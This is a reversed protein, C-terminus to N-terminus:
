REQSSDTVVLADGALPTPTRGTPRSTGGLGDSESLAPPATTLREDVMM